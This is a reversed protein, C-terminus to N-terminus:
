LEGDEYGAMLLSVMFGTVYGIGYIPYCCVMGITKLVKKIM